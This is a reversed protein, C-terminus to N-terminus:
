PNPAEQTIPINKLNLSLNQDPYDTLRLDVMVVGDLLISPISIVGQASVNGPPLENPLDEVIASLPRGLEDTVELFSYLFQVPNPSRNKLDVDLLVTGGQSRVGSITLTVDRSTTSKPLSRGPPNGKPSAEPKPSPQAPTAAQPPTTASQGTQQKIRSLVTKEDILVLPQPTKDADPDGALSPDGGGDPRSDPSTIGQLAEKGLNYGWSTSLTGAIGM